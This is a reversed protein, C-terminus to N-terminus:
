SVEKVSARHFDIVAEHSLGRIISNVTRSYMHNERSNAAGYDRTGSALHQM